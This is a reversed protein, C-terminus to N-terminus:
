FGLGYGLFLLGYAMVFLMVAGVFDEIWERM